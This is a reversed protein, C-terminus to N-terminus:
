EGSSVAYLRGGAPDEERGLPELWGPAAGADLRALLGDPRTKALIRNEPTGACFLVYSAGVAELKQHAEAPEAAFIDFAAAIGAADRHYNGSLARHPTEALIPSGMNVGAVITGPPVQHLLALMQPSLCAADTTGQPPVPPEVLMVPLIWLMPNALALPLLYAVRSGQGDRGSQFASACWLAMPWIAILHAFVYFRIQYFMLAIAVVLLAAFLVHVRTERGRLIALASIALASVPLGLAFAAFQWRDDAPAFMARAESVNSLWLTRVEEPLADLPNAFGDPALVAVALATTLGIAALAGFRVPKPRDSAFWAAAALGTGGILAGALSIVSLTDTYAAGWQAPGVMTLFSLLVTAAFAGGFAATGRRVRAGSNAWDLAHFACLVAIYPYTEAGIAVSLGLAIGSLSYRGPRALPDLSAGVALALLGLQLNHHDIAGSLFRFHVLFVPLAVILTFVLVRGDGLHRAGLILGALVILISLPPWVSIAWMLATESPMFLDFLHYFLLIPVDPIRSWHMLTGGEPGLRYQHMDFWGQGALLDRIQVLRMVDDGDPGPRGVHGDLLSWVIVSAFILGAIGLAWQWSTRSIQSTGSM